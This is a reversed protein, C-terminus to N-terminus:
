FTVTATVADANPICVTRNRCGVGRTDTWAPHAVLEKTAVGIYDGIFGGNFGDNNPDSPGDTVLLQPDFSAGLNYSTSLYTDILRNGPADDRQVFAVQVLGNEQSVAIWPFFQDATSVDSNVVYSPEWTVGGDTSRSFRVDANGERADGWVVYVNGSLCGGISPFSNGRYGSNRLPFSIEFVDDVKATATFTNGGDLSTSVLAQTFPAATGQFNEYVVYVEGNPGVHPVSGQDRNLAPPSVAKLASWTAGGDDSYKLVIPSEVYAGTTRVFKFRTWSVYIRGNHPSGARTDVAVFPKDNLFSFTPDTGGAIDLIVFGRFQITTLDTSRSIYISSNGNATRTFGICVSYAAGDPGFATSPDGAATAFLPLTTGTGVDNWSAGGNSSAYVGCQADFIRYDNAGGFLRREDNPDVAITAENQPRFLLDQNMAVNPGTQDSPWLPGPAEPEALAAFSPVVAVVGSLQPILGGVGFPDLLDASASPAAPQSHDSCATFVLACGLLALWRKM